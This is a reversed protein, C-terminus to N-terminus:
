YDEGSGLSSGADDADLRELWQASRVVKLRTLGKVNM